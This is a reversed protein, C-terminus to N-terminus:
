ASPSKKKRHMYYRFIDKLNKDFGVLLTSGAIIAPYRPEGQSNRLAASLETESMDAIRHSTTYSKDTKRVVVIDDCTKAFFEVEAMSMPDNQANRIEQPISHMSDLFKRMNRSSADNDAYYFLIVQAPQDNNVNSVGSITSRRSNRGGGMHL